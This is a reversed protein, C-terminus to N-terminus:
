NEAVPYPWIKTAVALLDRSRQSIYTENWVDVTQFIRNLNLASHKLIGERKKLWPGNSVSPNLHKTLLTLNGIGHLAHNRARLAEEQADPTDERVVLPWHREWDVPLLHEITLKREVKVNETKGTHLAAELAELIM